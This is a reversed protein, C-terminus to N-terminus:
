LQSWRFVKCVLDVGQAGRSRVILCVGSSSDFGFEKYLHLSHVIVIFTVVGSTELFRSRCEHLKARRKLVIVQDAPMSTKPAVLIGQTRSEAM